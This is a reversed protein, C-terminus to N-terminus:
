AAPGEGLAARLLALHSDIVAELPRQLSDLRGTYHVLLAGVLFSFLAAAQGRADVEPAVASLAQEIRGLVRALRANLDRDLDKSLGRRGIGGSLYLGLAVEAPRGVYYGAFARLGAELGAWGAGAAAMARAVHADLAELSQSLLAAYIAEKSGFLPYIAGTTCGAKAAIARMTARELGETAFVTLAAHLIQERRLDRLAEQRRLKATDGTM